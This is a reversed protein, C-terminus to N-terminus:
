RWDGAAVFSAWRFPHPYKGRERLAKLCALSAASVARDTSLGHGLRAAYLERIWRRASEDEVPWLSLLLTRVGAVRFARCLGIVGEGDVIEGTGSDCASLVAWECGRLDLSAIEEATLIGDEEGPAVSARVNAGALALGARLLPNAAFADDGPALVFGHTALHVVRRGRVNEKFAAESAAAGSLRVISGADRRLWRRWGGATSWAEVVVDGESQAGPLPDFRLRALDAAGPAGRLSAIKAPMAARAAVGGVAGGGAANGGGAAVARDFNPADVVLLGHGPDGESAAAFLDRESGLYHLVPIREVLFEREGVPLAAFNVLHVAGDPVFFVREVDGVAAELPDWVLKRLAVGAAREAAVNATSPDLMSRELERSWRHVASDVDACAGLPLTAPTREGGRLVFALLSRTRQPRDALVRDYSVFGVLASREPLAAAVQDFGRAFAEREHRFPASKAALDREAREKALRAEDLAHADAVGQSRSFDRVALRALKERAARLREALEAIRPDSSEVVTRQRSALEDLVLARSRIVADWADRASAPDAGAAAITLALSEGSARVAEYRLAQREPLVRATLELHRRGVDEARLATAFATRADGARYKAVALSALVTAVDPHDRGLWKELVNVAEALDDGAPATQGEDSLVEGLRALALATFPNDAGLKSRRIAVARELSKRAEDHRGLREQVSALDYLSSAVQMDEPGIVKEQIALAAELHQRADDLRGLEGEASGLNQMGRAVRPHDHGYAKEWIRLAREFGARATEYDGADLDISALANAASGVEPNESGQQKEQLALSREACARAAGLDGSLELVIALHSNAKAVNAGDPGEAKEFISREREYAARAKAYEGLYVLAHGVGALGAAVQVHDPGLLKERIALAKEQLALSGAFDDQDRLVNAVNSMALAVGDSEDGDTKRLIAEAREFTKRADAYHGTRHQLQGYGILTRGVASSAPGLKKEQIALAREYDARSSDFAASLRLLTALNVLSAAVDPHDAGQLRERIAVAREADRRAEPDKTKELRTLTRVLADLADAVALSDAGPHDRAALVERALAEAERLKSARLLADVDAPTRGTAPSPPASPSLAAFASPPRPGLSLAFVLLPIWRSM